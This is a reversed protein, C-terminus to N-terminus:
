QGAEEEAAGEIPEEATDALRVPTGLKESPVCLLQTLSQTLTETGFQNRTSPKRSLKYCVLHEKKKIPTVIDGHTKEVPACFRFPTTVTLNRELDFQDNLSVVKNVSKVGSTAYCKFHDVGGFPGHPLKQTPVALEVPNTVKFTSDGFQNRVRVQFVPRPTPDLPTIQYFKLHTNPNTVGTHKGNVTKTVPNCLRLPKVVTKREVRDLLDDFQDRLTVAANIAPGTVSYCKLHDM